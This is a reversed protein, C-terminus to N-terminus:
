RNGDSGPGRKLRFRIPVKIWVKIPKGYRKAPKWKGKLVAAQAIKGFQPYDPPSELIQTKVPNGNEDILVGVVVKAEVGQKRAEQPYVLHRRITKMGGIIEPPEHYPVEIYASEVDLFPEALTETGIEGPPASLVISLDNSGENVTVIDTMGDENFDGTGIRYPHRGVPIPKESVSIREKGGVLATVDHTRYNATAVESFDDGNLDGIAVGSPSGAVRFPSGPANKMRGSGDGLLISVADYHDDKWSGARHAVAVDPFHDGNVDGIAVFYPARSVLFPSGRVPNFGGRGDGLLVSLGLRQRAPTVVDLHHDDNLDAVAINTHPQGPVAFSFHRPPFRGDGTGFLVFLRQDTNSAALLDPYGDEDVDGAAIGHLEAETEVSFPSGPAPEFGGEGNGLMITIQPTTRHSIALDVNGDGDFDESALDM